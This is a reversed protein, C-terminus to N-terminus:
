CLGHHIKNAVVMYVSLDNRWVVSVSGLGSQPVWSYPKWNGLVMAVIGLLSVGSFRQEGVVSSFLVSWILFGFLNLNRGSTPKYLVGTSSYEGQPDLYGFIFRIGWVMSIIGIQPVM